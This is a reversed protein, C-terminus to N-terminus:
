EWKAIKCFFSFFFSFPPTLEASHVGTSSIAPLQEMSSQINQQNYISSEEEEKLLFVRGILQRM